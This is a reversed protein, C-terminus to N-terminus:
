GDNAGEGSYCRGNHNRGDIGDWLESVPRCQGTKVEHWAQKLSAALDFTRKKRKGKAM